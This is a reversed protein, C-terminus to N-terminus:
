DQIYYENSPSIDFSFSWHKPWRILLASENSFVRISPFISPPLLLPHCLIRHNYLMMSEISILKPLSQSLTFSTSAQRAATWPTVQVRSLSQVVVVVSLCSFLLCGTLFKGPLGPIFVKDGLACSAAEIGPPPASIGHAECGFYWFLFCFCCQLM